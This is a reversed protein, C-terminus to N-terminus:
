AQCFVITCAYESNEWFLVATPAPGNERAQKYPSAM